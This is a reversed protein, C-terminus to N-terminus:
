KLKILKHSILKDQMLSNITLFYVGTNLQQLDIQILDNHIRMPKIEIERGLQDFLKINNINLINELISINRLYLHSKVPNPFIEIQFNNIINKTSLLLDLTKKVTDSKCVNNSAILYVNYEAKTQYTYEGQIEESISGDGFDWFFADSNESLNNFSVSLGNMSYEFDAIPQKKSNIVIEDFAKCNFENTVEVSYNGSTNVSLFQETTNNNWLFEMYDGANLILENGECIMTDLGLSFDPVPNINITITDRNQCEHDDTVLVSFEGNSSIESYRNTSSNNWTYTSHLGADLLISKGQCISTDNGLNINPLQIVTLSFHDEGTCGYEDTVIVYYDGTLSAIYTRESSNDNWKYNSHNGADLTISNKFCISTDNGLNVQPLQIVEINISDSAQCGNENIVTVHYNGQNEISISNGISNDSWLYKSFSGASLIINEGQCISTDNGLNVIPAEFMSIIIEDSGKCNNKDLVSVTYTGSSTVTLAKNISLDSWIYSSFEGPYLEILQNPCITTDVGLNVIPLSNLTINITDSNSCNFSNTVSVSYQGQQWVAIQQTTENNNWLITLHNGANLKITDGVCISKDSGLFLLPMPNVKLFVTESILCGENDTYNLNYLGENQIFISDEISGTNWIYNSQGDIGIQISDGECITITDGFINSGHKFCIVTDTYESANYANDISQLRILYEGEPLYPVSYSNNLNMNGLNIHKLKGNLSSNSLISDENTVSGISLNYGLSIPLTYDDNGENWNIQIEENLAYCNIKDPTTPSNNITNLKNEYVYTAEPENQIYMRGYYLIDLDNDNDYDGLLAGGSDSSYISHNILSFSLDQNNIYINIKRPHSGVGYDIIDPYGDNNLDGLEINGKFVGVNYITFEEDFKLNGKNVFIHIDADMDTSGLWSSTSGTFIIDYLGDQNIDAVDLQVYNLNPLGIEKKEFTFNGINKYFVFKFDDKTSMGIVIDKLGDNDFDAWKANNQNANGRPGNIKPINVDVKIFNENGMNRYIGLDFQKNSNIGQYYIDLLGDNDVDVWELCCQALYPLTHSIEVFSNNVNKYIKTLNDESFGSQTGAYILDQTGDNNFDGWSLDGYIVRPLNTIGSESFTKDGNNMYLEAHTFNEQFDVGTVFIDLFGDSNYDCWSAYGLYGGKLEVNTVREFNQSFMTFSVLLIILLLSFNKM